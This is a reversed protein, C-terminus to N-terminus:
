ILGEKTLYKKLKERTRSLRVSVFHPSAGFLSSINSVSDGYFYRRVFMIRNDKSQEQLFANVALSLEKVDFENEPINESCFINELEDFATDYFSNRKIATNQHYKKLSINRVIRFLYSSLPQPNEPPINNWVVLFADNVCEKADEKNKLINEAIKLSVKGYKESIQTIAQQSRENFLGIIKKDDM